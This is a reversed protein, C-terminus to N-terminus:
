TVPEEEMRSVDFWISSPKGQDLVVKTAEISAVHTDDVWLVGHCADLLAKLLNDLDPRKTHWEGLKVRTKLWYSKPMAFNFCVRLRVPDSPWPVIDGGQERLQEVVMLKVIGKWEAASKPQFVRAKGNFAFARVRPQAKPEINLTFSYSSLHYSM